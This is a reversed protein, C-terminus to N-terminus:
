KNGKLLGIYQNIIAQDKSDLKAMINKIEPELSASDLDAEQMREIEELIIKKLKEETIKM